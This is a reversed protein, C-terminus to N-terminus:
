EDRGVLRVIREKESVVGIDVDVIDEIAHWAHALHPNEAGAIVGHADPDFRVYQGLETQRNGIEDVRDPLLVTL